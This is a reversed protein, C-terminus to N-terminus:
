SFALVIQQMTFTTTLTEVRDTLLIKIGPSFGHCLYLYIVTWVIKDSPPLRCDLVLHTYASYLVSIHIVPYIYSVSNENRWGPAPTANSKRFFEPILDASSTLSSSSLGRFRVRCLECM